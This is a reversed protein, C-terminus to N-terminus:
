STHPGDVQLVTRVNGNLRLVQPTVDVELGEARLDIDRGTIVVAGPSTIRDTARDYVARATRFELDDVFLVVDGELTVSALERDDLVLHGEAGTLRAKRQGGDLWLTLEPRTVVVESEKEFYQADTATIEWVTQGDKVKVRRFNRIHQAVHPLLESGLVELAREPRSGVSRWVQWGVGALAVAVVALLAARVRARRM